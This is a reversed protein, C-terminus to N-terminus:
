FSRCAPEQGASAVGFEVSGPRAVGRLTRSPHDLAAPPAALELRAVDAFWTYATAAKYGSVFDPFEFGYEVLRGHSPPYAKAFDAAIREFFAQGMLRCLSPYLAELARVAAYAINNRYVNLRTAIDPGTSPRALLQTISEDGGEEMATRFASQVEALRPLM